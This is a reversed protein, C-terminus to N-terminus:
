GGVGDFRDDNVLDRVQPSAIHPRISQRADGLRKDREVRSRPEDHASERNLTLDRAVIPDDCPGARTVGKRLGQGRQRAPNAKASREGSGASEARSVRDDLADLAEEVSARPM